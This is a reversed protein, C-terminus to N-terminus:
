SATSQLTKDAEAGKVATMNSANALQWASDGNRPLQKAISNHTRYKNIKQEYRQRHLEAHEGTNMVPRQQQLKYQSQQAPSPTNAQAVPQGDAGVHFRTGKASEGTQHQTLKLEKSHIRHINVSKLLNQVAKNQKYLGRAQFATGVGTILMTTAFSMLAGKFIEKGERVGSVASKEAMRASLEAFMMNIRRESINIEAMVQRLVSLFFRMM